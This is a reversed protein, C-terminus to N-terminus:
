RPPDPRRSVPKKKKNTPKKKSKATAPKAAAKKKPTADDVPAFLKNRKQGDEWAQERLARTQDVKSLTATTPAM